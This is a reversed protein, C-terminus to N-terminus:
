LVFILVFLSINNNRASKEKFNGSVTAAKGLLPNRLADNDVSVFITEPSSIRLGSFGKNAINHTPM